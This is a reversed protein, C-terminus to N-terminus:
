HKGNSLQGDAKNEATDQTMCAPSKMLTSVLLDLKNVLEPLHDEMSEVPKKSESSEGFYEIKEFQEGNLKEESSM